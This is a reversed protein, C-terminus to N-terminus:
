VKTETAEALKRKNGKYARFYHFAIAVGWGFTVWVPWPIGRPDNFYDPAAKILWMIWFFLNMVVFGFLNRKFAAIAKARRWVRKDREQEM